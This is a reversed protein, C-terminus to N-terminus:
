NVPLSIVFYNKISKQSILQNAFRRANEDSDFRGVRIKYWIEGSKRKTKVQYVDRVGKKMLLNILDRAQESSTFAAVQLTFIELKERSSLSNVAGGKNEHGTQGLREQQVQREGYNLVGTLIVVALFFFAWTKLKFLSLIFTQVLNIFIKLAAKLGDEFYGLFSKSLGLRVKLNALQLLDDKSFLDIKKIKSSFKSDAVERMMDSRGKFNLEQFVEGCKQHLSPDIGKWFGQCYARAVIKRVQSTEPFEWRLAGLYFRLAFSDSRQKELLQPLVFDVIERADKSEYEIASLFIPETKRTLLFKHLFLSALHNVVADDYFDEAKLIVLLLDIEEDTLDGGKELTSLLPARYPSGKPKLLFAKLFIKQARDDDQGAFLLYDAFRMIVTNRLRRGQSPLFNSSYTFDLVSQFRSIVELPDATSSIDKFKHMANHFRQEGILGYAFFGFIICVIFILWQIFSDNFVANPLAVEHIFYLTFFGLTALLFFSLGLRVFIYKTTQYTM